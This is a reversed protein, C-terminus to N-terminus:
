QFVTFDFAENTTQQPVKVELHKQFGYSKGYSKIRSYRLPIKYTDNLKIKYELYPINV